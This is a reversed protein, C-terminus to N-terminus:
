SAEEQLETRRIQILPCEPILPFSIASTRALCPDVLLRMRGAGRGVLWKLTEKRCEVKVSLLEFHMLESEDLGRMGRKCWKESMEKVLNKLESLLLFERMM